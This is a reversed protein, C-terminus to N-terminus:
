KIVGSPIGMLAYKGSGLQRRGALICSASAAGEGRCARRVEPIHIRVIPVSRGPCFVQLCVCCM